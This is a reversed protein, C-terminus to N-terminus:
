LGDRLDSTWGGTQNLEEFWPGPPDDLHREMAALKLRLLHAVPARYMYTTEEGSTAPLLTSPSTELLEIFDRTNATEAEIAARIRQVHSSQEPHERSEALCAHIREQVEILNRETTLAHFLTCIRDRV